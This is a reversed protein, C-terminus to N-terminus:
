IDVLVGLLTTFLDALIPEAIDSLYEMIRSSCSLQSQAIMKASKVDLFPLQGLLVERFYRLLNLPEFPSLSNRLYAQGWTSLYARYSLSNDWAVLILKEKFFYALLYRASHRKPWQRPCGQQHQSSLM